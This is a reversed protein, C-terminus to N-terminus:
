FWLIGKIITFQGTNMSRNTKYKSIGFEWENNSIKKRGMYSVDCTTSNYNDIIDGVKIDKFEYMPAYFGTTEKFKGIIIEEHQWKQIETISESAQEIKLYELLVSDNKNISTSDVYKIDRNQSNKNTCSTILIILIISLNKMTM